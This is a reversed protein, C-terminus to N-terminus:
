SAEEERLSADRSTYQYSIKIAPLMENILTVCQRKKIWEGCTKYTRCTIQKLSQFLITYTPVADIRSGKEKKREKM